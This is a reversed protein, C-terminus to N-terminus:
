ATGNKGTIDPERNVEISRLKMALFKRYVAVLEPGARRQNRDTSNIIKSFVAVAAAVEESSFSASHRV